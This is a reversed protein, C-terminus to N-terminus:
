RQQKGLSVASYRHHPENGNMITLLPSRTISILSSLVGPTEVPRQARYLENRMDHESSDLEIGLVDGFGSNDTLQTHLSSFSFNENVAKELAIHGGGAVASSTDIDCCCESDSDEFGDELDYSDQLSDSISRIARHQMQALEIESAPKCAVDPATSSQKFVVVILISTTVLVAGAVSLMSLSDATFMVQWIFGCAVDSMRMATAAASKERQMGITMLIQSWAGIVGGLFLMGLVFFGVDFELTQGSIYMSPMALVMQGISQAFCVNAWPMKASTGLMRVFIFACAASCAATLAFGVGKYFTNDHAAGEGFIIPPKAVMSAGILSLFTGCLEPWRWSEGLFIYSLISALLPSLMILVTSDGIPILEVALFAFAISGFGALSRMFVIFKIWNTDGFLNPGKGDLRDKDWYVFWGALIFQVFGRFFVCQFSGRFGNETIIKIILTQLSFGIGSLFVYFLPLRSSIQDQM